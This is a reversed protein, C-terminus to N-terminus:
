LIQWITLDSNNRGSIDFATIGPLKFNKQIQEFITFQMHLFQEHNTVLYCPVTYCCSSRQLFSWMVLAVTDGWKGMKSIPNDFDINVALGESSKNFQIFRVTALIKWQVKNKTYDFSATLDCTNVGM